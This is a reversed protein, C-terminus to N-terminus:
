VENNFVRELLYKLIHGICNGVLLLVTLPWFMGGIATDAYLIGLHDHRWLYLLIGYTIGGIFVYGMIAFIIIM